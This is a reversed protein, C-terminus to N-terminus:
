LHQLRKSLIKIKRFGVIFSEALSQFKVLEIYLKKRYILFVTKTFFKNLTRSEFTNTLFQLSKKVDCNFQHNFCRQM